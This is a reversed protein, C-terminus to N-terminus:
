RPATHCPTPASRRFFRGCRAGRSTRCCSGCGRSPRTSIGTTDCRPQAPRGAAAAPRSRDGVPAPLLDGSPRRGPERARHGLPDLRVAALPLLRRRCNAPERRLDAGHLGAGRCSSGQGPRHRVSAPCVGSHRLPRTSDPLHQRRIHPRGRDARRTGVAIPACHFLEAGPLRAGAGWDDARAAGQRSTCRRPLCAPTQDYVLRHGYGHSAVEHGAAAIRQVLAPHREAVWGSCSSHAACTTSPWYTSCGTPTPSLVARSRAGCRARCRARRVRQRPLLGRRRDDDRQRRTAISM